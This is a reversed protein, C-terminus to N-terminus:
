YHEDPIILEAIILEMEFDHSQLVIRIRPIQRVAFDSDSRVARQDLAREKRELVNCFSFSCSIDLTETERWVGRERGFRM